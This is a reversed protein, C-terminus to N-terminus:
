AVRPRRDDSGAYGGLGPRRDPDRADNGPGDDRRDDSGYNGGSRSYSCPEHWDGDARLGWVLPSKGTGAADRRMRGAAHTTNRCRPHARPRGQAIPGDRAARSPMMTADRPSAMVSRLRMAAPSYRTGAASKM